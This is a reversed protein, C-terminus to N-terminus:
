FPPMAVRVDSDAFECIIVQFAEWREDAEDWLLSLTIKADCEFPVKDIASAVEVRIPITVDIATEHQRELSVLQDNPQGIKSISLCPADGTSRAAAQGNFMWCNLEAGVVSIQANRVAAVRELFYEQHGDGGTLPSPEQNRATRYDSLTWEDGFWWVGFLAAVEDGVTSLDPLQEGNPGELGRCLSDFDAEIRDLTAEQDDAEIAGPNYDYAVKATSRAMVAGATCLAVVAVGAASGLRFCSGMGKANM